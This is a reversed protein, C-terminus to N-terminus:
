TLKEENVLYIFEWNNLDLNQLRKRTREEFKALGEEWEFFGYDEIEGAQMVIQAEQQKTIAEALWITQLSKDTFDDIMQIKDDIILPKVITIDLGVEEKVERLATQIMTEGEEGIGGPTNWKNRVDKVFLFKGQQNPIIVGASWYQTPLGSRHAIKQANTEIM